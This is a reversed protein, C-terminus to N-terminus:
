EKFPKENWFFNLKTRVLNLVLSIVPFPIVYSYTLRSVDIHLISQLAGEIDYVCVLFLFSGLTSYQSVGYLLNAANM